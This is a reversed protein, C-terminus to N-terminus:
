FSYYIAAEGSFNVGGSDEIFEYRGVIGCMLSISLRFFHFDLGPGAGFFLLRSSEDTTTYMTTKYDRNNYTLEDYVFHPGCYLLLNVLKAEKLIRLGTIGLSINTTTREDNKNYFPSTTVQFGWKGIWQRYSLGYGTIFGAAAGINHDGVKNIDSFSVASLLLILAPLLATKNM